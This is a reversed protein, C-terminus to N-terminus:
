GTYWLEMRLYLIFESGFIEMVVISVRKRFSGMVVECGFCVMFKGLM